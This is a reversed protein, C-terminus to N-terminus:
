VLISLWSLGTLIFVDINSVLSFEKLIDRQWTILIYASGQIWPYYTGFSVTIVHFQPYYRVCYIVHYKHLM